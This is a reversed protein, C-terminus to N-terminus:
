LGHLLLAADPVAGHALRRTCVLLGLRGAAGRRAAQKTCFYVIDDPMVDSGEGMSTLAHPLIGEREKQRLRGVRMGYAVGHWRVFLLSLQCFNWEMGYPLGRGRCRKSLVSMCLLFSVANRAYRPTRVCANIRCRAMSNALYQCPTPLTNALLHWVRSYPMEIADRHCRGLYLRALCLSVVAEWESWRPSLCLPWGRCEPPLRCRVMAWHGERHGFARSFRKCM